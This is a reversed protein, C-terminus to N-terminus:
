IQLTLQTIIHIQVIPHRTIKQSHFINNSLHRGLYELNNQTALHNPAFFYISCSSIIGQNNVIPFSTNAIDAYLGHCSPLCAVRTASIKEVCDM